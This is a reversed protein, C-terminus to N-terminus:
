KLVEKHKEVFAEIEEIPMSEWDKGELKKIRCIRMAWGTQISRHLDEGSMHINKMTITTM